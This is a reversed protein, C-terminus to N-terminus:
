KCVHNLLNAIVKIQDLKSTCQQLENVCSFLISSVEAFTFLEGNTQGEFHTQMRSNNITNQRTMDINPTHRQIATRPGAVQAYSRTLPPPTPAPTLQIHPKATFNGNSKTNKWKNTAAKIEMYKARTPCEIDNAKHNHPLNEAKCNHCKYVRQDDTQANFSCASTEHNDGCLNCKATRSCSTVGHGFMGCRLCQTPGKQRPRTPQWSIVHNLIVKINKIDAKSNESPNFQLIYKRFSSQSNLMIIKSVTVNNQSKLSEVIEETPFEPLGCLVLKFTKTDGFPHSFFESKKERLAECVKNFDETNDVYIKTGISVIKLRYQVNIAKLVASVNTDSTVTIPAPKIPRTIPVQDNSKLVSFRNGTPVNYEVKAAKSHTGRDLSTTRTRTRKHKGKQGFM